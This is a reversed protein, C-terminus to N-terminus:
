CCEEIKEIPYFKDRTVFYHGVALGELVDKKIVLNVPEEVRNQASTLYFWAGELRYKKQRGLIGEERIDAAVQLLQERSFRYKNKIFAILREKEVLMVEAAAIHEAQFNRLKTPEAWLWVLLYHSTKLNSNCLWGCRVEKEPSLWTLEFAFTPLCRNIYGTMAKEDLVLQGCEECVGDIRGRIGVDLGRLQWQMDSIRKVKCGPAFRPYFYEDLFKGVENEARMDIERTSVGMFNRCNGGKWRFSM